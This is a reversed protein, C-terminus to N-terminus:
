LLTSLQTTNYLDNLVSAGCHPFHHHLSYYARTIAFIDDQIYVSMRKLAHLATWTFIDKALLL